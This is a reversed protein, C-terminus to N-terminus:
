PVVMKSLGLRTDDAISGASSTPAKPSQLFAVLADLEKPKLSSGFAPM